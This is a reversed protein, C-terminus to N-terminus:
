KGAYYGYDALQRKKLQTTYSSPPRVTTTYGGRCITSAINKQTVRPDRVGPTCTRDPLGGHAQCRAAGRAHAEASTAPAAATFMVLTAAMGVAAVRRIGRNRTVM